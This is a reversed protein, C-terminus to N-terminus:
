AGVQQCPTAHQIAHAREWAEMWRWAHDDLRLQEAVQRGADSLEQRLAPSGWLRKMERYWVRPREALVGAGMAHLRAYEARPSAVWPVGCASMEIPKLWSKSRNFKTDALPAIGIGLDAVARPWQMIDVAGGPPDERLGFGRGAGRSDGVMRFPAGDGVVRAVAGGVASPDDPHSHISAPWGIVDSDARSLGYYMSPLYNHLVHGRGHAAYVALLAPTSVTVLTASRCAASLNRWSHRHPQGDAGRKGENAPHVHAWAANNPHISTLDDDVDVVVAIGKARMVGVAQAMLSHTVRQMVVVDSEVHVDKVVDGEVVIRVQRDHARVVTVDHGRKRLLEGPWIMRFHGCGFNDAPYLAM